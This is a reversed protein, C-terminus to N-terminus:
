ESCSKDHVPRSKKVELGRSGSSNSSSSGCSSSGTNCCVTASSHLLMECFSLAYHVTDTDTSGFLPIFEKLAGEDLLLTCFNDGHAAINCMTYAAQV